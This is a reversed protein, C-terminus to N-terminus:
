VSLLFLSLLIFPCLLVEPIQAFWEHHFGFCFLVVLSVPILSSLKKWTELKFVYVQQKQRRGVRGFPSYDGKETEIRKMAKMQLVSKKHLEPLATSYWDLQHLKECTSRSCCVLSLYYPFVLGVCVHFFLSVLRSFLRLCSSFPLQQGLLVRM